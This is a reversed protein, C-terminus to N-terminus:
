ETQLNSLKNQYSDSKEMGLEGYLDKYGKLFSVIFQRVIILPLFDDLEEHALGLLREEEGAQQMLNFLDQLSISKLNQIELMVYLPELFELNVYEHKQYKEIRCTKNTELM